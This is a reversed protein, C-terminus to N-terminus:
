CGDFAEQRVHCPPPFTPNAARLASKWMQWFHTPVDPMSAEM